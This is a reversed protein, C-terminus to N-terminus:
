IQDLNLIYYVVIRDSEDKKIYNELKIKLYLKIYKKNALLQKVKGQIYFTMNAYNM